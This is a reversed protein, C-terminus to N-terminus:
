NFWDPRYTWYRCRSSSLRARNTRTPMSTATRSLSLEGTFWERSRIWSACCPPQQLYSRIHSINPCAALTSAFEAAFFQSKGLCRIIDTATLSRDNAEISRLARIITYGDKEQTYFLMANVMQVVSLTAGLIDLGDGFCNSGDVDYLSSAFVHLKPSMPVQGAHYNVLYRVHRDVDKNDWVMQSTRHVNKTAAYLIHYISPILILDNFALANLRKASDTGGSAVLSKHDLLFPGGLPEDTDSGIVSAKYEVLFKDLNSTGDAAGFPSKRYATYSESLVIPPLNAKVAEKFDPTNVWEETEKSAKVGSLMKRKCSFAFKDGGLSFDPYKKPANDPNALQVLKHFDQLYGGLSACISPVAANKKQNMESESKARLKTLDANPNPDAPAQFPFYVRMPVEKNLMGLPNSSDKLVEEIKEIMDNTDNADNPGDEDENNHRLQAASKLSGAVIVSSKVQIDSAFMAFIVAAFRHLGEWPGGEGCPSTGSQKCLRVLQYMQQHLPIAAWGTGAKDTIKKWGDEVQWAKAILVQDEEDRPDLTCYKKNEEKQYWEFFHFSKESPYFRCRQISEAKDGPIECV